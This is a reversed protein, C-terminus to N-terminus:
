INHSNREWFVNDSYGQIKSDKDALGLRKEALLCYYEDIEIGFYKRGLKKATVSTTGTGLFPDFVFDGPKSSALIIKAILKEPKQTPHETNEPMSWFPITIDTWINSPYTLRYKGGSDTEWDKPKGVEDKYPAIVKKKLKVAEPNFYYDNSNTAFWIDETCNKWNTKSGRGKEREWTIRNRVIFHKKLVNYVPASSKWDCCVYISATKKLTKIIKTLWSNLWTEYALDNSEKFITSNFTKTLNYPPDIFLLDVFNEPLFNVAEFLDQNITKNTIEEVSTNKTLKHLKQQTILKEETTIDITRNRPAKTLNKM